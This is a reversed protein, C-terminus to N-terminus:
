RLDKGPVYFDGPLRHWGFSTGGSLNPVGGGNFTSTVTAKQGKALSGKVASSRYPSDYYPGGQSIRTVGETDPWVILNMGRQGSRLEAAKVLLAWPWAEFPSTTRGPDKVHVTSPSAIANAFVSHGGLFKNTAFKTGATANTDISVTLAHGGALLAWADVPTVFFRATAVVGTSRQTAIVADQYSMGGPAPTPDANRIAQHDVIRAGVTARAAGMACCTPVCDDASRATVPVYQAQAVPQYTM